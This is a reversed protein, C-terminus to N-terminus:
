ELYFHQDLYIGGAFGRQEADFDEFYQEASSTKGCDGHHLVHESSYTPNEFSLNRGELDSLMSGHLELRVIGLFAFEIEGVVKGEITDDLM